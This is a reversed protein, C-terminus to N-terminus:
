SPILQLTTLPNPFYVPQELIVRWKPKKLKWAGDFYLCMQTKAQDHLNKASFLDQTNMFIGAFHPKFSTFPKNVKLPSNVADLNQMKRKMNM